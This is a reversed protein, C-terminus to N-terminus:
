VTTKTDLSHESTKTEPLAKTIRNTKGFCSAGTFITLGFKKSSPSTELGNKLVPLLCAICRKFWEKQDVFRKCPM